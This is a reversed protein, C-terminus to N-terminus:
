TWFALPKATAVKKKQKKTFTKLMKNRLAEQKRHSGRRVAHEAENTGLWQGIVQAYPNETEFAGTGEMRPKQGSKAEHRITSESSGFVYELISPM